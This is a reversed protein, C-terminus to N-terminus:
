SKLIGLLVALPISCFGLVVAIAIVLAVTRRRPAAPAAVGLSRPSSWLGHYLHLGLAGMSVIYFLSVWWISFGRVVNGAVDTAVHDKPFITGTTLHLIHFVIFCLLLVGGWRITRAALTSAQPELREYGVPRAARSRATLQYATVAHLTVTSLLLLRVPWVIGPKSKLFYAYTNLTTFSQFITLNGLVHQIVFLAMVVGTVAMVVKKGVASAYFRLLTNM